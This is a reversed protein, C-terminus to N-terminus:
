HIGSWWNNYGYNTTIMQGRYYNQSYHKLHCAFRTISKQQKGIKKLKLITKMACQTSPYFAQLGSCLM